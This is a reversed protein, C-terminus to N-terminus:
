DPERVIPLASWLGDPYDKRLIDLASEAADRELFRLMVGTPTDYGGANLMAKRALKPDVRDPHATSEIKYKFFANADAEDWTIGTVTALMALREPSARQYAAAILTRREGWPVRDWESWVVVVYLRGSQGLPTEVALPEGNSTGPTDAALEAALRAILQERVEASPFLATRIVPM